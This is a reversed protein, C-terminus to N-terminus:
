VAKEKLFYITDLSLRKIFQSIQDASIKQIMEYYEELTFDINLDHIIFDDFLFYKNDLKRLLNIRKREKINHLLAEIVTTDELESMVDLLSQYVEKYDDRHIFTTIELAGYRLYAIVKSSYILDKEDRLKKSLLRSSLSSLLDRIIILYVKDSITMNKVKYVFSLSSDKFNSDEEITKVKDRPELYCTFNREVKQYHSHKISLIEECIPLIEKSEESGMVYIIPRQKLICNIYFQYLSHSTVADIQEPYWVIDRSLVGVTDIYKRIYIDQYSHMNLFANDIANRLNKKERDLEFTSFGDEIILPEYIMEKLFQIQKRYLKKGLANKNPITLDFIFCGTTGMIVKHCRASLIYLEKKATQFLEEKPYKQNMYNLMSPLLSINALDKEKEEFPFLVKVQITQFDNNQYFVPKSPILETSM